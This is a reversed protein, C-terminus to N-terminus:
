LNGKGLSSFLIEEDPHDTSKIPVIQLTITAPALGPAYARVTVAGAKHRSKVFL